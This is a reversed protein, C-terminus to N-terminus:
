CSIKNLNTFSIELFSYKDHLDRSEVLITVVYQRRRFIQCLNHCRIRLKWVIQCIYLDPLIWRRLISTAMLSFNKTIKLWRVNLGQARRHNLPTLIHSIDFLTRWFRVMFDLRIRCINPNTKCITYVCNTQSATTTAGLTLYTCNESSSRGCGM